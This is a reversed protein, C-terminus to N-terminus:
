NSGIGIRRADCGVVVGGVGVGIRSERDPKLRMQQSPALSKRAVPRVLSRRRVGCAAAAPVARGVAGGGM